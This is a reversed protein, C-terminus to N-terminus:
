SLFRYFEDHHLISFITLLHPRKKGERRTQPGERIVQMMLPAQLTINEGRITVQTTKCSKLNDINLIRAGPSESARLIDIFKM